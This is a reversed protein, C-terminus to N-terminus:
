RGDHDDRAIPLLRTDYLAEDSAQQVRRGISRRIMSFSAASLM